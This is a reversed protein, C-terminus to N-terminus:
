RGRGRLGELAKLRTENREPPLRADVAPDDICVAVVVAVRHDEPEPVLAPGVPDLVRPEQRREEQVRGGGLQRLDAPPGLDPVADALRPLDRPPDGELVALRLRDELDRRPVVAVDALDRVDEIRVAPVDVM